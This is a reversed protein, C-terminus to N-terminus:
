FWLSHINEVCSEVTFVGFNLARHIYRAVVEMLNKKFLNNDSSDISLTM